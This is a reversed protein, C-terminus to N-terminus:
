KIPAANLCWGELSTTPLGNIFFVRGIARVAKSGGREETLFFLYAFNQGGVGKIASKKLCRKVRKKM